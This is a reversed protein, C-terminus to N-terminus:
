KPKWLPTLKEFQGHNLPRVALDDAESQSVHGDTFLCNVRKGPHRGGLADVEHEPWPTKHANVTAGPIYGKNFAEYSTKPAQAHSEPLTHVWALLTYGSDALLLTRSSRVRTPSGSFEGFSGAIVSESPSKCVSWNVGYNGWLDNYKFKPEANNKSPCRLIHKNASFIDPVIDLYYFWWLGEWDISSDVMNGASDPLTLSPVFASPFTNHNTHYLDFALGINRINSQCLITRTRRRAALFLPLSIALLFAIIGVVMLLETLTSGNKKMM